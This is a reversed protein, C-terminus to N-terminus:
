ERTRPIPKESQPSRRRETAPRNAITIRAAASTPRPDEIKWGSDERMARIAEPPRGPSACDSKWTPPLAPEAIPGSSAARTTTGFPCALMAQNEAAASHQTATSARTPAQYRARSSARLAADAPFGAAVRAAKELRLIATETAM